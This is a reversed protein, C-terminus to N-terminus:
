DCAESQEISQIWIIQLYVLYTLV